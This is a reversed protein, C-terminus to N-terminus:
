KCTTYQMPTTKFAVCSEASAKADADAAAADDKAVVPPIAPITHLIELAQNHLEWYPVPPKPTM